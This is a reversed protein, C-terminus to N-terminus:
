LWGRHVARVGAEFRSHANLRTMLESAMRRVTRLSLGLRRAAVEDTMGQALLWLLEHEVATLGHQGRRPQQGWPVGERWFQDFLARIAAIM